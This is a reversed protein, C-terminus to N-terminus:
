PAPVPLGLIERVAPELRTLGAERGLALAEEASAGDLRNAKLALLAGVRNGSGCYLVAPEGGARELEAALRRANDETLGDAGEVPIRVFQLGLERALEEEWGTGTEDTPRLNIFHRYGRSGLAAMQERTVQGGTILGPLPQRGNLIEVAGSEAASPQSPAPQATASPVPPTPEAPGAGTSGAPDGADPGPGSCALCAALAAMIALRNLM